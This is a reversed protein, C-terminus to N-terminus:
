QIKVMHQAKESKLCANAAVSLEAIMRIQVRIQIRYNDHAGLLDCGLTGKVDRVVVLLTLCAIIVAPFLLPTCALVRDASSPMKIPPAIRASGRPSTM